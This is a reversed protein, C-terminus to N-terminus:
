EGSSGWRQTVGEGKAGHRRWRQWGTSRRVWTMLRKREVGLRAMVKGGLKRVQEGAELANWEPQLWVKNELM